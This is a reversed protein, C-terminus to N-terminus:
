QADGRISPLASVLEYQRSFDIDRAVFINILAGHNAYGTPPINITNRLTEVALNQTAQSTNSLNITTSSGNSGVSQNAFAQSLDSVMAVMAAGGFREWFHTDVYAEMGSGGLSDTVPSDLPVSVSGDDIRTMLVFIRAQGQLLASRQEGIVEAGKRLLLTSGDASYVDRVLSCLTMGPYTTVTKTGMACPIMTGRKLLYRQDPLFSAQVVGARSAMSPALQDDLANKGGGSRASLSAAAQLASPGGDASPQASGQSKRDSLVTVNGALRREAPTEVHTQSGNGASNGATGTNTNASGGPSGMGNAAQAGAPVPMGGAGAAGSALGAAKAQAEEEQIRRKQRELDGYDGQASTSEKPKNREEQKEALKMDTVRKVFVAASGLAGALAVVVVVLVGLKKSKTQKKARVSPIGREEPPAPNIENPETM